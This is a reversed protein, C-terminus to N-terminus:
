HIIVSSQHSIIILLGVALALRVHCPLQTAGCLAGCGLAMTPEAAAPASAAAGAMAAESFTGALGSSAGEPPAQQAPGDEREDAPRADAGMERYSGRYM